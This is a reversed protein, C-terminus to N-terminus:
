RFDYDICTNTTCPSPIYISDEEVWCCFLVVCCCSCRRCRFLRCFLFYFCVVVCRFCRSSVTIKYVSIGPKRTSFNNLTSRYGNSYLRVNTTKNSVKSTWSVVVYKVCQCYPWKKEKKLITSHTCWWFNVFLLSYITYVECVSEICLFDLLFFFFNWLSVASLGSYWEYTYVLICM